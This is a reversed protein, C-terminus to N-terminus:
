RHAVVRRLPLPLARGPAAWSALSKKAHAISADPIDPLYLGNIMLAAETPNTVKYSFVTRQDSDIQFGHTSLLKATGDRAQPNPWSESRVGLARMVRIWGVVGSLHRWVGFGLGSPVLAVITGGPRLVRRVEALVDDLPTLVQLCMAACVADVTGTGVPLAEARAQVLPGRDEAAAAALEGASADIGLWRSQDLLARTPASGCALDLVRGSTRRLPEVLWTYPTDHHRNTTGSLIQETIGPRRDHYDDLYHRWDVANM